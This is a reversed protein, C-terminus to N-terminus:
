RLCKEMSRDSCRVIYKDIDRYRVIYKLNYARKICLSWTRESLSVTDHWTVCVRTEPLWTIVRMTLCYDNLDEGTPPSTSFRVDAASTLCVSWDDHRWREACCCIALFGTITFAFSLTVCRSKICRLTVYRSLTGFPCSWEQRGCRGDNAYQSFEMTVHGVSDRAVSPSIAPTGGFSMRQINSAIPDNSKRNTQKM